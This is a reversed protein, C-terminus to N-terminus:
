RAWPGGPWPSGSSGRRRVAGREGSFVPREPGASPDPPSDKRPLRVTIPINWTSLGHGGGGSADEGRPAGSSPVSGLVGECGGAPRPPDGPGTMVGSYYGIDSTDHGTLKKLALYTHALTRYSTDRGCNGGGGPLPQAKRPHFGALGAVGVAFERITTRVPPPRARIVQLAPLRVYLICGGAESVFDTAPADPRDRALRQLHLVRCATIAHLALCKRSGDVTGPQRDGIRAGSRPVRFWEGTSWRAGARGVAGRVTKPDPEGRSVTLMWGPPEKGAPPDPETVPVALMGTPRRDAADAPAALTVRAARIDLQATRKRRASGGGRAAIGVTRGALRPLTAMHEWLDTRGGTGSLVSRRAPRGARVPFTQRPDDAAGPPLERFDGERDRVPVVRADPCADAPEGSRDLGRLWRVSGTDEKGRFDANLEFVGPARGAAGPGARCPGRSGLCGRRRGDPSVRGGTARLTDYNLTTTDQVALVM